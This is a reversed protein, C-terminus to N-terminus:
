NVIETGSLTWTAANGNDITYASAGANFVISDVEVSRRISVDTMASVDFSAIDAPGDPVTAPTWNTATNWDTSTPNLNWTTSGAHAFDFFLLFAVSFFLAKKM